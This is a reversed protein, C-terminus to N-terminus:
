FGPFTTNIFGFVAQEILIHQPGGGIWSFTHARSDTADRLITLTSMPVDSWMLDSDCLIGARLHSLQAAFQTAAAPTVYTMRADTAGTLSQTRCVRAQGNNYVTLQIDVPGGLTGGSSDFIVLPEHPLTNACTPALAPQFFLFPFAALSSCVYTRFM